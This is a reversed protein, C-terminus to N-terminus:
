NNRGNVNKPDAFFELPRFLSFDNIFAFSGQQLIVVLSKAPCSSLRRGSVTNHNYVIQKSNDILINYKGWYRRWVRVM